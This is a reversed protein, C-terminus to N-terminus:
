NVILHFLLHNEVIFLTLDTVNEDLSYHILAYRYARTGVSTASQIEM